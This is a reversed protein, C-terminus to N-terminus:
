AAEKGEMEAPLSLTGLRTRGPHRFVTHTSTSAPASGWPEGYTTAAKWGEAVADPQTQQVRAAPQVRPCSQYNFHAQNCKKCQPIRGM